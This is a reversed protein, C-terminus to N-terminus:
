LVMHVRGSAKLEADLARLQQEGTAIITVTVSLYRANSSERVSVKHPDVLEAHRAMVEVVFDRFDEAANGVVRIVYDCPFEIRPPEPQHSM